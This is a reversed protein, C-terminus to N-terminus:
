PGGLLQELLSRQAPASGGLTQKADLARNIRMLCEALHIRTMEDKSKTQQIRTRLTRLADWVLLKADDPGPNGLFMTFMQDLYARQLSRRLVPIPKGTALEAWVNSGVTHFLESLTLPNGKVTKFENNAVRTLTGAGFLMGLAGVQVSKFQSLMPYDNRASLMGSLGASNPNGTFYVFYSKPFNFASEAFIYTNLLKFARRQQAPDIPALTPKQGADGKFNNAYCMGGIYRACEQAGRTYTGFLMNFDRTFEWFSHGREPLRKDLNFILSRSVNMVREWYDIPNKGLDFRTVNPDISDAMEDGLWQHGPKNCESAIRGLAPLEEEPSSAGLERYGYDIAWYDYAGHTTWFFLPDSKKLQSINFPVYDMCSASSSRSQVLSNDALQQLSLETSAVFNHRLGMNHGSEHAIVWRIFSNLYEEKDQKSWLPNVMSFALNGFAANAVAENGLRCIRRPDYSLPKEQFVSAPDAIIEREINIYRVINSDVTIAANVIEGTLPNPRFLAIAYGNMPSAVWRVVNYRVDATDFDANDPIQKVVVADKFGAKEFVPNWSLLGDRVADRYELPIANDLWWVIPKKPPSVSATPDQKELRWRIINKVNMDIAADNSFDQYDVTFYGVRGDFRRPMYGDTPVMMLNYDVTVVVSRSDANIDGGLLDALSMGGRGGSKSFNYTTQAFVNEPFSKLSRLVTKEKDMSYSAGGGGLGPIPLGGGGSFLRSIQAIDGRFLDSVNILLSNRDPQKAEIKYSELYSDSFSREVAKAIPKAKDARFNRNPVVMFLKDDEVKQFKFLLDDIPDGAVVQSQDSTGTAATTQLWLLKDLQDEKVEMYITWRGSEKKRYLTFLGDLKEFDKVTEDITKDKKETDGQKEGPKAPLPSGFIREGHVKGSASGPGLQLGSIEHDAQVQDGSSKEVWITSTVSLKPNGSSEAYVMKIKLCDVEKVKEAALVEFDAHADPNGLKDDAKYDYSWKDGVGVPNASYVLNTAQFLRPGMHEKDEDDKESTYAALTGNPRVVITSSRKAGDPADIKQGNMSMTMDEVAKEMTVDGNAAVKTFTVKETQKQEIALKQGQAEITLNVNATYRAVRGAEAKIALTVKDDARVALSLLVPLAVFALTRIPFRM